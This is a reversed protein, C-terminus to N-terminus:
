RGKAIEEIHLLRKEIPPHSAFFTELFGIIGFAKMENPLRLQEPPIKGLKAL